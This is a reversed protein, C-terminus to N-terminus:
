VKKKTIVIVFIELGTKAHILEYVKIHSARWPFASRLIKIMTHCRSYIIIQTFAASYLDM